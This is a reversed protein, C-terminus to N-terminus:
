FESASLTAARNHREPENPCFAFGAPVRVENGEPEVCGVNSILSRGFARIADVVSTSDEAMLAFTTAVAALAAREAAGIGVAIMEPRQPNQKSTLARWEDKWDDIAEGDTIFWVVPRLVGHGNSELEAVDAKIQKRVFSFTPGWLTPGSATLRPMAAIRAVPSLPVVLRPVDSFSTVGLWTSEVIRPDEQFALVSNNLLANLAEIPAGALSASVDIVLYIPRIMGSSPRDDDSIPDPSRLRTNRPMADRLGARPRFDLWETGSSEPDCGTAALRNRLANRSMPSDTLRIVSLGSLDSPLQVDGLAVLLTRDPAKGMALGAEFLVNSRPQGDRNEPSLVVLVAQAIEVAASLVDGVHPAGVGIEAVVDEWAVPRLGMARLLEPLPEVAGVDRGHIILVSKRDALRGGQPRGASPTALSPRRRYALRLLLARAIADFLRPERHRRFSEPTVALVKAAKSRRQGLRLRGAKPYLDLLECAARHEDDPLHSIAEALENRLLAAVEAIGEGGLGLRIALNLLAADEMLDTVAFGKRAQNTLAHALDEALDEDSGDEIRYNDM